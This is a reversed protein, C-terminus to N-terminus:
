PCNKKKCKNGMQLCCKTPQNCITQGGCFPPSLAVCQAQTICSAAQASRPSVISVVMPVAFGLKALTRVVHRRSYRPTGTGASERQELLHARGLRDLALRVTEGGAPIGLEDALAKALGAVSPQGDCRGWVFAATRNLCHAKHREQDYILTEEPLEEIVLRDKRAQPNM